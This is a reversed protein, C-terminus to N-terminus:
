GGGGKELVMYTPGLPPSPPHQGAVERSSVRPGAATDGALQTAPSRSAGGAASRGPGRPPLATRGAQWCVPPVPAAPPFRARNAISSTRLSRLRHRSPVTRDSGAGPGGNGGGWGRPKAGEPRPPAARLLPFAPAPAAILHVRLEPPAPQAPAPSPPVRPRADTQQWLQRQRQRSVKCFPGHLGAKRCFRQAARGEIRPFRPQAQAAARGPEAGRPTRASGGPGTRGAARGAEAAGGPPRAAPRGTRM